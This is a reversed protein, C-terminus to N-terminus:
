LLLKAVIYASRSRYPRPVPLADYEASALAVATRRAKADPHRVVLSYYKESKIAICTVTGDAKKTRMTMFDHKYALNAM